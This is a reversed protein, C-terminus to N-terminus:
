AHKASGNSKKAASRKPKAKSVHKKAPREVAGTRAHETCRNDHGTAHTTCRNDSHVPPAAPPAPAVGNGGDGGPLEVVVVTDGDEPQPLAVIGPSPQNYGNGAGGGPGGAGPSGLGGGSDGGGGGTGESGSGSTPGGTEDPRPPQLTVTSVTDLLRGPFRLVSSIDIASLAFASIAGYTLVVGVTLALISGTGRSGTTARRPTGNERRM